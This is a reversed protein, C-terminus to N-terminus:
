TDPCFADGNQVLDCAHVSCGSLIDDNDVSLTVALSSLMLLLMAQLSLIVALVIVTDDGVIIVADVADDGVIVAGVADAQLSPVMALVIVTGNGVVVADDDDIVAADGVVVVDNNSVAGNNASSMLLM